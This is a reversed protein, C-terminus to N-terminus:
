IERYKTRGTLCKESADCKACAKRNRYRPKTKGVQSLLQDATCRFVDNEKDYSFERRTHGESQRSVQDIDPKSCLLNHRGRYVARHGSSPLVWQRCGSRVKNSCLAKEGTTRRRFQHLDNADSTVADGVILYYKHDTAIQANCDQSATTRKRPLRADPDTSSHQTKGLMNVTDIQEQTSGIDVNLQALAEKARTIGM